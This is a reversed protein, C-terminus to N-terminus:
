SSDGIEIFSEGSVLTIDNEKAYQVSEDEFGSFSFYYYYLKGRGKKYISSIDKEIHKSLESIDVKRTRYKCEGSITNGTKDTAIIDIESIKDWWRGIQTFMFPLKMRSNERKMYEICVDEFVSSVFHDLNPEILKTYVSSADGFELLTINPFVFGYWFRFFYNKIKYIGRQPNPKEGRSASVPLEREVLELEILNKLYVSLVSKDLATDDQIESFKTRGPAVSM